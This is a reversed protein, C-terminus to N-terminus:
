KEEGLSVRKCDLIVLPHRVAIAELVKECALETPYIEESVPVWECADHACPSFFLVFGMLVPSVM